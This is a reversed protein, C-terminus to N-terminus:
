IFTAVSKESFPLKFLDKGGMKLPSETWFRSKIQQQNSFNLMEKWPKRAKWVIVQHIGHIGQM